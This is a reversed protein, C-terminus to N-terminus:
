DTDNNFFASTHINKEQREYVETLRAKADRMIDAKSKGKVYEKAIANIRDTSSMIYGIEESIMENSMKLLENIEDDAFDKIGTTEAIFQKRQENVQKAGSVTSTKSYLFTRYRRFENLLTTRDMGTITPLVTEGSPSKKSLQKASPTMLDAKELREYRKRATSRLISVSKRLEKTSMKRINQPPLELLTRTTM